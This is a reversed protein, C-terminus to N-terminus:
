GAIASRSLWHPEQFADLAQMAVVPALTPSAACLLPAIAILPTFDKPARWTALQLRRIHNIPAAEAELQAMSM